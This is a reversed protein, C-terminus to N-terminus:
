IMIQYSVNNKKTRRLIVWNLNSRSQCLVLVVVPVLVFVPAPVLVLIPVLVLALVLDSVLVLIM